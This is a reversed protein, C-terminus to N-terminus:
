HGTKAAHPLTGWDLRHGPNLCHGRRATEFGYRWNLRRLLRASATELKFARLAGASKVVGSLLSSAARAVAPPGAGARVLLAAPTPLNEEFTRPKGPFVESHRDRLLSVGYGQSRADRVFGRVDRSHLHQARLNRDFIGKLGATRCRLGFDQDEHYAAEFGPSVMGVRLVDDRRMSFNGGWLSGLVDRGGRELLRCLREYEQAYLLTAFQGPRREQPVPIPMYGMVVVDCREAHHRLHGLALGPSAIVDDDLFLVVEGKAQAAGDARATNAGGTKERFLPVLKNHRIAEERLWGTSEDDSGDVVVVLETVYPDTFLPSLVTPLRDPRGVTPIVVSLAPLVELERHIM